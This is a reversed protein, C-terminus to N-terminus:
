KKNYIYIKKKRNEKSEQEIKKKPFKNLVALIIGHFRFMFYDIAREAVESGWM